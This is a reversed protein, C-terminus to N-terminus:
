LGLYDKKPRSKVKMKTGEKDCWYIQEGGKTVKCLTLDGAQINDASLEGIPEFAIRKAVTKERYVVFKTSKTVGHDSGANIYLTLVKSNGFKEDQSDVQKKSKVQDIEVVQGEIPFNAEVFQSIPNQKLVDGKDTIQGLAEKFAENENNNYDSGSFTMQKTDLVKSEESIEVAKITVTIKCKATTYKEGKETTHSIEDPTIILYYQAGLRLIAGMRDSSPDNGATVTEQTRRIEENNAITEGEADLIILRNSRSLTSMVANRVTKEEATKSSSEVFVTPKAAPTIEEDQANMNVAPFLLLTLMAAYKKMFSTKM